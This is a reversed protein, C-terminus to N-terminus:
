SFRYGPPGRTAASGWADAYDDYRLYGVCTM